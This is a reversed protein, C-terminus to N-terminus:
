YCAKAVVHTKANWCKILETKTSRENSKELKKFLMPITELFM